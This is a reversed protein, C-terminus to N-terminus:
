FQWGAEGFYLLGGVLVLFLLIALAFIGSIGGRPDKLEVDDFDDFLPDEDEEEEVAAPHGSREDGLPHELAAAKEEQFVAQKSEVTREPVSTQKEGAKIIDTGAKGPSFASEQLAM